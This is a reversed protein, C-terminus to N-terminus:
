RSIEQSDATAPQTTNPHHTPPNTAPTSTAGATSLAIVYDQLSVPSVDLDGLHTDPEPIVRVQSLGGMSRRSLVTLGSIRADVEVTPGSVEICANRLSETEGSLLIRGRDILIIKELLDATEDILHTSVVMARPHSAFDALLHDYFLQRAVADLGLYPEDFLTLPARSALGIVIGLASRQGRSLKKEVGVKLPVQFDSLLERALDDDWEPYVQAAVSLLSTATMSEPYTQSEQIFCTQALASPNEFVPQDFVTVRGSTPLVQGTMLQMLTTKGAGNRGLLGTITEPEITISINDCAVQGTRYSKTLSSTRAATTM